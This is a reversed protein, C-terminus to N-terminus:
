SNRQDLMTVRAVHLSRCWMRSIKFCHQHIIAGFQQVATIVHPLVSPDILFQLRLDDNCSFFYEDLLLKLVPKDHSYNRTFAALRRRVEILGNCQLLFHEINEIQKLSYCEPFLCLGLKNQSWHRRLNETRYRGCLILAQISAARLEYANGQLNSFIPHPHSLSLYDGRLYKLSDFTNSKSSLYLRWYEKIRDKYMSKFKTAPLPSNLLTLPHPLNYKVCINRLMYFWSKSSPRSMVLANRAISHLPNDTLNCIMNFLSFVRMHLYAEAPLSGSIFYIAPEPVDKPLKLLNRLTNKYHFNLANIESRNLVLSGLGAMLVPLAYLREVKICSSPSASHRLAMGAPLLSFLKRKHASFRNILNPMNSASSSRLIGLHEAECSFTISKGNLCLQPTILDLDDKCNPPIFKMLNTKSPVLEVDNKKCYNETLYLLNRLNVLSTSVLAADDALSVCSICDEYIPAGLYSQQSSETQENNYIKYADSSFIGGQELGRTDMIPGMIENKFECYTYRNKLRNDIYLLRQDDTGAFFFNRILIKNLTRDFAARADLFLVYLPKKATFLTFQTVETLLLAALEHSMNDGQYQTLAQNANWSKVSLGRVHKNLAKALLPCTSITRYSKADNRDKNHGKYLVVAYITNLEPIGALNINEIITNILLRFHEIGSAGAHLFHLPTISFFDNVTKKLSMLIREADHYSLLPIRERSKCIDLIHRYEESFDPHDVNDCHTKVPETKLEKISEYIGDPVCDGQYSKSGVNLYDISRTSTQNLKKLAAYVKSSSSFSNLGDLIADRKAADIMKYQRVLKKHHLRLNKFKSTLHNSMKSSSPTRKLANFCTRLYRESKLLDLPKRVSKVPRTEALDVFNNTSRACTDLFSYTSSILISFSASSFENLWRERMDTLIRGMSKNYCDIGDDSWLIKVRDNTIRPATHKQKLLPQQSSQLYFKSVVIDHHSLIIPDIQKCVIKILNECSGQSHLLVDLQSDSKGDGTFHHYTPHHLETTELKFKRLLNNYLSCRKKNKFNVNADGRIFVLIGPHKNTIDTILHDLNSLEEAFDIDRGSTPLYISVQLSPRINPPCFLFALLSSSTTSIPTMFVDLDKKWMMMTGGKAKKSTYPLDSDFLDDSSLAYCYEGRFLSVEALLDCQFLMPESLFVFDPSFTSLFHKLAFKSRAFGEINWM